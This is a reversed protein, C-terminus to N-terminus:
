GLEHQPASAELFRIRQITTNRVGKSHENLLHQKLIEVSKMGRIAAARVMASPDDLFRVRNEDADLHEAAAARISALSNEAFIPNLRTEDSKAGAVAECLVWDTAFKAFELRTEDSQAHRVAEGAILPLDRVFLLRVADSINPDRALQGRESDTGEKAILLQEQTPALDAM